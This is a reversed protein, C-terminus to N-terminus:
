ARRTRNNARRMRRTRRRGGMSTGNRQPGASKFFSYIGYGSGILAPVGIVVALIGTTKNDM